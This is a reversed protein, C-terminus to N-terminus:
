DTTTKTHKHLKKFAALDKAKACYHIKCPQLLATDSPKLTSNQANHLLSLM